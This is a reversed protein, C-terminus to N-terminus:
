LTMSHSYEHPNGNEDDWHLTVNQTQAVGMFLATTVGVETNPAIAEFTPPNGDGTHLLPARGDGRPEIQLTVNYATAEGDNRIVIRENKKRTRVRGRSDTETVERFDYRAHLRAEENKDLTAAETPANLRVVDSELSQRILGRLDDETTFTRYLGRQGLSARFKQLAALQSADHGYSIPQESFFVHVPLGGSIAQEIEEATGSLSRPTSTGLRAHFIAFVIDAKEVLQKNIEAQGDMGLSFSSVADTSWHRPLLVVSSHASRERNWEYSVREVLELHPRVDGPGALM